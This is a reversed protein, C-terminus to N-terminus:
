GGDIVPRNNGILSLAKDIVITEHYVGCRDRACRGTHGARDATSRIRLGCGRLRRAIPPMATIVVAALVMFYFGLAFSTESHFNWVNTTGFVKPTFSGTNLAAEPDM